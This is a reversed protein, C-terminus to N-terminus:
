HNNLLKELSQKHTLYQRSANDQQKLFSLETIYFPYDGGDKRQQMVLERVKTFLNPNNISGKFETTGCTIICQIPTIPNDVVIKIPLFSTKYEDEIAAFEGISWEIADYEMRFFRLQIENGNQLSNALFQRLNSIITHQRLQTFPYQYISGLEDLIYVIIQKAEKYFFLNITREAQHELMLSYMDEQEVLSAIATPTFHSKNEALLVPLTQQKNAEIYDVGAEHWQIRFLKDAFEMIYSGNDPHNCYLTLLQKCSQILRRTINTGLNPTSCWSELKNLLGITPTWRILSCLMEIVAYPGDYKFYHCQGHSTLALGELTQIVNTRQFSYNFPDQQRLSFNLDQRKFAEKPVVELNSFLQWSILTEAQDKNLGNSQTIPSKLISEILPSCMALSVDRAKDTVKIRSSKTLLKNCIAWTLTRLLSSDSHLPDIKRAATNDQEFLFWKDGVKERELFLFEEGEEPLLKKPLVEIIAPSSSFLEHHLATLQQQQATTNLKHQKAFDALLSNLKSTLLNTQKYERLRERFRAEYRHDIAKINYDSWNWSKPFDLLSQRRWPHPPNKVDFSLKEECLLYLSRRVLGILSDPLKNSLYYTKLVNPDCFFAEKQKQYVAHKYASALWPASEFNEIVIRKYLLGLFAPLGNNMANINHHYAQDYLAQASRNKLPGFDIVAVPFTHDTNIKQTATHYNEPSDEGLKIFWWLPVSGALILGNCYLRDLYPSDLPKTLTTAKNVLLAKLTIDFTQAWEVILDLKDNLLQIESDALNADHVLLLDYEPKNPYYLCGYDNILYLGQLPYTLFAQQKYNFSRQQIKAADLAQKNPQYEVIGQPAGTIYGPMDPENTHFLLPLLQFFLNKKNPALEILREIRSRNHTQFLTQVQSLDM